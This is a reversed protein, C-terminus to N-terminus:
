FFLIWEKARTELRSLLPRFPSQEFLKWAIFLLIGEDIWWIQTTTNISRCQGKQHNIKQMYKLLDLLISFYELVFIYFDWSVCTKEKILIALLKNFLRWVPLTSLCSFVSILIDCMKIQPKTYIKMSKGQCLSIGFSLISFSNHTADEM